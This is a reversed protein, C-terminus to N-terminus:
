KNLLQKKLYESRMEAVIYNFENWEKVAKSYLMDVTKDDMKVSVNKGLAELEVIKPELVERSFKLDGRYEDN